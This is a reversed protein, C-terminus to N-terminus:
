SPPHRLERIEEISRSLHTAVNLNHPNGLVPWGFRLQLYNDPIPTLPVNYQCRWFVHDHTGVEQVCFPCADEAIDELGPGHFRAAPSLFSGMFLARCSASNMLLERASGLDIHSFMQIVTPRDFRSDLEGCPSSAVTQHIQSFKSTQM